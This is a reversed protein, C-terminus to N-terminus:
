IVRRSGTVVGLRLVLMCVIDVFRPASIPSFFVVPSPGLRIFGGWSGELIRYNGFMISKQSVQM